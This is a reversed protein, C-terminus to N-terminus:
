RETSQQECKEPLLGKFNKADLVEYYTQNGDWIYSLFAQLPVAQGLRIKTLEIELWDQQIKWATRDAQFKIREMTGSHPKLVEKALADFVAQPNAPLKILVDKGRIEIQFTLSILRGSEYNKGIAKAGFDALIQEIRSVTKEVPVGSTYNKINM